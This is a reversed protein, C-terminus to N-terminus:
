HLIHTVSKLSTPGIQWGGGGLGHATGYFGM